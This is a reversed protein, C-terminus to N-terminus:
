RKTYVKVVNILRKLLSEKTCKQMLHIIDEKQYNNFFTKRIEPEKVSNYVASNHKAIMSYDVRQYKIEDSIEQFLYKGKQSNVFVASTGKDDFMKPLCKKIGWFDGLTIDSINFSPKFSCHYCSPRLSINKLFTRMYLDNGFKKRYLKSNQFPIKVSFHSWGKTKDRFSPMKKTDRKEEFKLELAKLYDKWVAPSPVGHCIFDIIYLKDYNKGLFRKLGACQCPTGSFLVVQNRNLDEKVKKPTISMNSQLYKSGLIKWLDSEKEIRIHEVEANSNFAAGYVIGGKALIKKALLIFIGGSSSKLRMEENLNICAYADPEGTNHQNANKIPCVKACLGCEICKKTDIKSYSFGEKDPKMIICNQPCINYCANCGCCDKKEKIEIRM